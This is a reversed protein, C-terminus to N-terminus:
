AKDENQIRITTSRTSDEIDIAEGSITIRIGRKELAIRITDIIRKLRIHEQKEDDIKRRLSAIEEQMADIAQGQAKSANDNVRVKAMARAAFIAVFFMILISLLGAFSNLDQIIANM